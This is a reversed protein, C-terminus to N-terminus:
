CQVWQKVWVKVEEQKGMVPEHFNMESTMTVSIMSNMGHQETKKVEPMRLDRFGTWRIEPIARAEEEERYQWLEVKLGSKRERNWDMRQVAVIIYNYWIIQNSQEEKTLFWEHNRITKTYFLLMANLVKGAWGMVTAQEKEQWEPNETEWVPRLAKSHRSARETRRM